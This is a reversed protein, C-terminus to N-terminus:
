HQKFTDKRDDLDIVVLQHGNRKNQRQNNNTQNHTTNLEIILILTVLFISKRYVWKKVM